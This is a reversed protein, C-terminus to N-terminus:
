QITVVVRRNRPESTGPPAEVEPVNAGHSTAEIRDAAIGQRILLGRVTTARRLGMADNAQRSGRQDAHGVVSIHAGPRQRATEVIPAIQEEWGPLTATGGSGFYLVVSVPPPPQAALARGFLENTTTQDMAVPPRPPATSSGLITAQNPHDLQVAGGESSVSITSETGDPNAFVTFMSGRLSAQLRALSSHFLSECVVLDSLHNLFWHGRLWCDFDIQTEAALEPFFLRGGGRLAANMTDRAQQFRAADAEPLTAIPVTEAEVAVGAAAADAKSRFLSASTWDREAVHYDALLLYQDRLSNYFDALEPAAAPQAPSETTPPETVPPEVTACGILCGAMVLPVFHLRRWAKAGSITM